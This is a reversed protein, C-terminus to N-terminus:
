PLALKQVVVPPLVCYAGTGCQQLEGDARFSRRWRCRCLLSARGCYELSNPTDRTILPPVGDFSRSIRVLIREPARRADAKQGGVDLAYQIGFVQTRVRLRSESRLAGVHVGELAAVASYAGYSCGLCDLGEITFDIRQLGAEPLAGPQLLTFTHNTLKRLQNDIQQLVQEPKAKKFGQTEDDYTFTVRATDYDV